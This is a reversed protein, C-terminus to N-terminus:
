SKTTNFLNRLTFNCLLLLSNMALIISSFMIVYTNTNNKIYLTMCELCRSLVINMIGSKYQGSKYFNFFIFQTENM